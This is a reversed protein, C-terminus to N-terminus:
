SGDVFQACLMCSPYPIGSLLVVMKSVTFWHNSGCYYLLFEDRHASASSRCRSKLIALVSLCKNYAELCVIRGAQSPLYVLLLVFDPMIFIYFCGGIMKLSRLPTDDM